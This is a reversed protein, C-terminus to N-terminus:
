GSNKVLTFEEILSFLQEMSLFPFMLPREQFIKKLQMLNPSLHIMICKVVITELGSEVDIM